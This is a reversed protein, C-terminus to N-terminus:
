WHLVHSLPNFTHLSLIYAQMITMTEFNQLKSKTITSVKFRLFFVLSKSRAQQFWVTQYQTAPDLKWPKSCLKLFETRMTKALFKECNFKM